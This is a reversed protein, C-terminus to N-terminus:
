INSEKQIGFLHNYYSYYPERNHIREHNNEEKLSNLPLASGQAPRTCSGLREEKDKSGDPEEQICGEVEECLPSASLITYPHQQHASLGSLHIRICTKRVNMGLDFNFKTELAMLI